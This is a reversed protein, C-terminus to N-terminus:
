ENDIAADVKESKFKDIFLYRSPVGFVWEEKSKIENSINRQMINITLVISILLHKIEKKSTEERDAMNAVLHTQREIAEATQYIDHLKSKFNARKEKEVNEKRKDNMFIWLSFFLSLVTILGTIINFTDM